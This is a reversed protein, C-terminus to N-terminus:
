WLMLSLLLLLITSMETRISNSAIEPEPVRSGESNQEFDEGPSKTVFAAVCDEVASLPGLCRLITRHFERLDFREGMQESASQRLERIKREGVKYATAQGPWTIYRDVEREVAVRSLATNAEMYDVAEQRTWGLAHIGTDVVLRCARLLNYSYHGFRAYLDEQYLGMEFGLFESYLGWGEVHATNMPFRSPAESYRTFMPNAMFRPLDKQQKNFVFQYNHGPNGEHLTLTVAEYKKQSQLPNLNVYFVGPRSGDQSGNEFYAEPGGSPAAAVMLSSVADTLTDAPLITALKPEVSALIKRYTGLAEERSSFRQSPDARAEIAFQQFTKNDAVLQVLLQDVGSRIAAVEEVGMDHVEQPTMQTSTHWQLVADYFERGGQMSSVGPGGRVQSSYEYKIYEQLHRLAPLLEDSVTAYSESQLRGVVHRGLSGPMDRFRAYFDSANAGVQLKEFQSDVGKLSERAYTVGQKVGERLLAEVQKVMLPLLKVRALLDEYDKLSGLPTRKRDSILRPYEVQLGELFNIPPLLFGKHRMGDVCTRLETEFINKHMANTSGEKAQDGLIRSRDLFEQCKEGKALIGEMSFDEVLHNYGPFGELTAWEPYTHLKWQFYDEMLESLTENVAERGGCSTIAKAEGMPSQPTPTAIVDSLLLLVIGACLGAMVTGTGM